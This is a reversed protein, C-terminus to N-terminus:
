LSCFASSDTSLPVARLTQMFELFQLSFKPNYAQIQPMTEACFASMYILLKRLPAIQWLRVTLALSHSDCFLDPSPDSDGMGVRHWATPFHRTGHTVAGPYGWLDNHVGLTVEAKGNGDRPTAWRVPHAYGPPNCMHNRRCPTELHEWENGSTQQTASSDKIGRSVAAGNRGRYTRQTDRLEKFPCVTQTESGYSLPLRISPTQGWNSPNSARLPPHVYREWPVLSNLGNAQDDQKNMEEMGKKDALQFISHHWELNPYITEAGCKSACPPCLGTEEAGLCVDGTVQSERLSGLQSFFMWFHTKPLFLCDASTGCNITATIWEDWRPNHDQLSGPTISAGRASAAGWSTVTERKPAELSGSGQEPVKSTSCSILHNGHGLGQQLSQLEETVTKLSNPCQSLEKSGIGARTTANWGRYSWGPLVCKIKHEATCPQIQSLHRM